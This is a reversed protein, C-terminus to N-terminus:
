KYKCRKFSDGLMEEDLMFNYRQTFPAV